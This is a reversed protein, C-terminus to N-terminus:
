AVCDHSVMPEAMAGIAQPLVERLERSDIAIQHHQTGYHKAILDSYVFEDGKEEGVTEFGVSYTKLNDAGEQKMLGVLLSSDVGGSLLVGVDVAAVMRRRVAAELSERLLQKWDAFSRKEDEESREFMPGWYSEVRLQGTPELVAYSGQPLKRVGQLITLPAPVVAHFSLDHHLGVPPIGRCVVRDVLLAPASSAFRLRPADHSCTLARIAFCEPAMFGRAWQREWVVISLPGKFRQPCVACWTHCAK